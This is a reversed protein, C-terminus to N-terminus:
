HMVAGFVCICTDVNEEPRCHWTWGHCATSGFPEMKPTATPGIVGIYGPHLAEPVAVAPVGVHVVVERKQAVVSRPPPQAVPEAHRGAILLLGCRQAIAAPLAVHGAPVCRVSQYVPTAPLKAHLGHEQPGVDPALQSLM